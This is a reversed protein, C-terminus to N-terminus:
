DCDDDDEDEEKKVQRIGLEASSQWRVCNPMDFCGITILRIIILIFKMNQKLYPIFKSSM